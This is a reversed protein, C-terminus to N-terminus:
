AARTVPVQRPKSARPEERHLRVTLLGNDLDAGDVAVHDALQFRRVFDRFAIGRHLLTPQGADAEGARQRRGAVTLVGDEVEVTLDEPAFGAVALTIAYGDAGQKEINYPPYSSADNGRRAAEARQALRDFGVTSRFLPALDYAQM